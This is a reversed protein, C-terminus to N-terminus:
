RHAGVFIVLGVIALVFTALILSATGYVLRKVPDFEERTICKRLDERLYAVHVALPDLQDLEPLPRYREPGDPM